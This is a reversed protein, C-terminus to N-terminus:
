WGTVARWFSSTTSLVKRKTDEAIAMTEEVQVVKEDNNDIEHTPEVYDNNILPKLITDKPRKEDMLADSTITADRFELVDQRCCCTCLYRCFTDSLKHCKGIRPYLWAVLCGMLPFLILPQLAVLLCNLYFPRMPSNFYQLVCDSELIELLPLGFYAQIKFMEHIVANKWIYDFHSLVSNFQYANLMIRFISTRTGGGHHRRDSNIVQHEVEMLVKEEAVRISLCSLLGGILLSVLFALIILTFDASAGLCKRCDYIEIRGYGKECDTCLKGTYGEACKDRDEICAENRCKLFLLEDSNKDLWYGEEPPVETDNMGPRDCLGGKPCEWCEKLGEKGYGRTDHYTFHGERCQCKLASEKNSNRPCYRCETSNENPVQLKGCPICKTSGTTSSIGGTGKCAFCQSLGMKNTYTGAPCTKCRPSDGANYKGPPCPSCSVSSKERGPPCEAAHMNVSSNTIVDMFEGPRYEIHLMAGASYTSNPATYIMRTCGDTGNNGFCCKGLSTVCSEGGTFNALPSSPKMVFLEVELAHATALQGYSDFIQVHLGEIAIFGSPVTITRNPHLGYWDIRIPQTAM